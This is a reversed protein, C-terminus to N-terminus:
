ELGTVGQLVALLAEPYDSGILVTKGRTRTIKVGRNGRLYYAWMERNVRIGYGGFDKLPQYEHIELGTIDAIKIRLVRIGLIGWRIVVQDRTVLTRQGGYPIILMIGVLLTVIGAWGQIFWIIATVTFMVLPLVVTLLTVYFPNQYDWYVFSANDKLKKAIEEKLEPSKETILPSEYPRYPRLADLIIALLVAGGAMPLAYVWPFTFSDNGSKLFSLYGLSVGAMFPVFIDDMLSLWNFSKAKEQRAWLEDLLVSVLIFVVALGITIGFVEWPSGYRDPAGNFGFHVPAESPLPGATLIFVVLIVLAAVSPLHTWLPHVLKLRMVQEM